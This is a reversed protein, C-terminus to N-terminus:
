EYKKEWEWLRQSCEAPQLARKLILHKINIDHNCQQQLLFKNPMGLHNLFLLHHQFLKHKHIRYVFHIFIMNIYFLRSNANHILFIITLLALFSPSQHNSIASSYLIYLYNCHPSICPFVASSTPFPQM